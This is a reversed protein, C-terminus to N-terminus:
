AAARPSLAELFKDSTSTWGFLLRVTLLTAEHNSRPADHAIPEAMCDSLLVCHYDRYFADRVTSDVCVSTTCGTVILHKVGTDKLRADLETNYFASFRNKWVTLEGPQPKLEDVVDTGWGDRILIRWAAGEANRASQGVDMRAHVARNPSDAPGMDSLDPRFGMKVYIVKLGAARAASLTKAIHPVVARIGAIPVGARDFMGGPSGFDNQMDIVIVASAAADFTVAAPAADLMLLRPM